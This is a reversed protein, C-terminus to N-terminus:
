GRHATGAGLVTIRSVTFPGISCVRGGDPTFRPYRKAVPLCYEARASTAVSATTAGQWYLTGKDPRADGIITRLLSSKGSGNPGIVVLKEGARLAFQIDNLITTGSRALLSVGDVHLLEPIPQNM